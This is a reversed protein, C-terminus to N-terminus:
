YALEDISINMTELIGDLTQVKVKSGGIIKYYTTTGINSLDCFTKISMKNAKRFELILNVKVRKSIMHMEMKIKNLSIAM